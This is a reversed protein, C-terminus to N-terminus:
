FPPPPPESTPGPTVGTSITLVFTASGSNPVNTTGTTTLGNVEASVSKSGASLPTSTSDTFTAQGGSTARVLNGVTVIGDVVAGDSTRLQVILSRAGPRPTSPTSTPRPTSTPSPSSGGGGGGGCGQLFALPLALTLAALAAFKGTKM